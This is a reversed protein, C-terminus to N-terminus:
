RRTSLAAIHAVLLSDPHAAQHDRALLLTRDHDGCLHATAVAVLQRDRSCTAAAAARALLETRSPTILAAAVLVAPDQSTCAADRLAHSSGDSGAILDRILQEPDRTAAM